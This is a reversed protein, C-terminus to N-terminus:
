RAKKSWDKLLETMLRVGFGVAGKSIYERKHADAKGDNFAPGAIDIHAWPYNDVFKKLLLAATIAGGYRGGINRVDAVDSKIQDEYEEYLPLPWVKEGTAESAKRIREMLKEDTGMMGAVKKGLGVACAGTLTALDIIAQPNYDCGYALADALILRGEADTNLVEITKKNYITLIDGPKQARRGPMNETCPAIAVVNLPLKLRAVAQMTAIVAAAGSMDHKMDKMFEYSKINLGGSDFTIGKGVLVIPKGKGKMYEMVILKPPEESGASVGLIGGMGRKEMDKQNLITVSIGTDKGVKEAVKALATPTKEKSPLNILDRALIVAECVIRAERVAARIKPILRQEREVITVSGIEKRKEKDETKYKVFRYNALFSGEAVARAAEEINFGGIGAGHVITSYKRVGIKRLDKLAKASVERIRDLTFDKKKGLGAILVREAPIKGFTRFLYTKKFKGRFDRSKIIESIMGGTAKDVAGTAGGPQKVGEFLNVVIAEDKWDDISGHSVQIRMGM